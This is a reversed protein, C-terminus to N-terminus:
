IPARGIWTFGRLKALLKDSELHVVAGLAPGCASYRKFLHVLAERSLLDVLKNVRDGPIEVNRQLQNFVHSTARRFAHGGAGLIALM